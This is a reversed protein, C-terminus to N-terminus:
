LCQCLFCSSALKGEVGYHETNQSNKAERTLSQAEPDCLTLCPSGESGKLAVILFM